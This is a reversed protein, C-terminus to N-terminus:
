SHLAYVGFAYGFCNWNPVWARGRSSLIRWKKGTLNPHNRLITRKVAAIDWSPPIRYDDKRTGGNRFDNIEIQDEQSIADWKADTYIGGNPLVARDNVDSLAAQLVQRTWDGSAGPFDNGLEGDSRELFGALRKM